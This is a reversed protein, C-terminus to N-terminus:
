DLLSDIDSHLEINKQRMKRYNINGFYLESFGKVPENERYDEKDYIEPKVGLRHEKCRFCVMGDADSYIVESCYICNKTVLQM